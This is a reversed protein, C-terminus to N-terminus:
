APIGIVLSKTGDTFKCYFVIRGSSDCQKTTGGFYISEVAAGGDSLIDGSALLLSHGRGNYHVLEQLAVGNENKSSICYFLSDDSDVSGTSFYLTENGMPSIDGSEIIKKSGLHLAMHDKSDDWTIGYVEGSSTTRPGYFCPASLDADTIANDAGLLLNESTNVNGTMLLANSEPESGNSRPSALPAAHGSVAYHGNDHMDILGFTELAHNSSPVFDGSSMLLKSSDLSGGPLYVLGRGYSGSDDASKLHGSFMIEDNDHLDIDGLQGTTFVSNDAFKQGYTFVPEFSANGKQLYLGSMHHEIKEGAPTKAVVDVAVSGEGNVDMSKLNGVCRGDPLYEDTMIPLKEWEIEPRGSSTDIAVQVLGVRGSNSVADFTIVDNDSIHVSGRFMDLDISKASHSVTDGGSKVRYFRYANFSSGGSDFPGICGTLSTSIVAGGIAGSVAKM